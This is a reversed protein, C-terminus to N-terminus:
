RCGIVVRRVGSELVRPACPGTRGTHNCPELTVYLTAGPAHFELKALADIEGHAAGARHHYGRALVKGNRVVVAGVVPNPHTGGRGKEALAMAMAMFRRDQDSPSM